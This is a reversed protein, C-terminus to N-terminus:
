NDLKPKEPLANGEKEEKKSPCLEGRKCNKIKFIKYM